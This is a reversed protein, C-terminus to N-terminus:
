LRTNVSLKAGAGALRVGFKWGEKCARGKLWMYADRERGLITGNVWVEGGLRESKRSCRPPLPLKCGM